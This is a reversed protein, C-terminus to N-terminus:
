SAEAVIRTFDLSSVIGVLKQYLVYPNNDAATVIGAESFSLREDIYGGKQGAYLTLPPTGPQVKRAIVWDASPGASTAKSGTTATPMATLAMCLSEAHPEAKPGVPWNIGKVFLLNQAHAALKSTAKGAAALGDPTLPGLASPFFSEPVVGDVACIFLSFVPAHGAAEIASKVQLAGYTAGARATLAETDQTIYTEYVWEAQQAEIGAKVLQAEATVVFDDAEKQPTPKSEQALAPTTSLAVALAALSVFRFM